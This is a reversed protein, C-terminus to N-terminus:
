QEMNRFNDKKIFSHFMGAASRFDEAFVVENLKSDNNICVREAYSLATKKELESAPGYFCFTFSRNTKYRKIHHVEGKTFKFFPLSSSIGRDFFCKVSSSLGGYTMESIIFCQESLGIERGAHAFADKYICYGKNKLWCKFCGSCHVAKVNTNVAKWCDKEPIKLVDEQIDHILLNM